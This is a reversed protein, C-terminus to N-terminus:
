SKKSRLTNTIVVVEHHDDVWLDIMEMKVEAQDNTPQTTIKPTTVKSTTVKPKRRKWSLKRM